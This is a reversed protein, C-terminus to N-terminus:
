LLRSGAFFFRNHQHLKSKQCPTCLGVTISLTCHMLDQSPSLIFFFVRSLVCATSECIRIDSDESESCCSSVSLSALLSVCLGPFGPFSLCGFLFRWIGYSM